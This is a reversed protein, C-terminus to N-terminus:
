GNIIEMLASFFNEENLEEYSIRRQGRLVIKWMWERKKRKGDHKKMKRDISVAANVNIGRNDKDVLIFQVRGIAGEMDIRGKVGILSTGIPELKVMQGAFHIIMSHISYAGIHDETLVMKKYEFSLKKKQAYPTLWTEAQAYFTKVSVLWEDKRQTWDIGTEKDKKEHKSLFNEFDKKSM